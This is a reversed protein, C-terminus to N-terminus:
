TMKKGDDEPLAPVAGTGDLPPPSPPSAPPVASSPSAAAAPAPATVGVRSGRVAAVIGTVAWAALTIVLLFFLVGAANGAMLVVALTLLLLEVVVVLGFIRHRVKLRALAGWGKPAAAVAWIVVVTLV